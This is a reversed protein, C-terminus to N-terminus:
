LHWDSIKPVFKEIGGEGEDHIWIINTYCANYKSSSYQLWFILAYKSLHVDDMEILVAETLEAFNLPILGLIHM